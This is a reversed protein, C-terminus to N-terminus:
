LFNLFKETRCLWQFDCRSFLNSMEPFFHDAADASFVDSANTITIGCCHYAALDIHDLGVNSGVVYYIFPFRDLTDSTLPSLGFCLLLRVSSALSQTQPSSFSPDLSDLHRFRTQLWSKYSLEFTSIRHILVLPLNDPPQKTRRFGNFHDWATGMGYGHRVWATGTAYGHWVRILWVYWVRKQRVRYAYRRVPVRVRVRYTDPVRVASNKSYGYKM